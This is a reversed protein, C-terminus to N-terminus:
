WGIRRIDAVEDFHADQSLIPLQHQRALASIWLDNSPIPRGKRKLEQRIDAYHRATSRDVELVPFLRECEEIKRLLVARLRSEAAGFRYEGLVIVPLCAFASSSLVDKVQPSDLLFESLANTDLIVAM